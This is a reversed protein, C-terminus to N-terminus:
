AWANIEQQREDGKNYWKGVGRPPLIQAIKRKNTVRRPVVSWGMGKETLDNAQSNERVFVKFRLQSRAVTNLDGGM